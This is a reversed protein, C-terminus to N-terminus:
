DLAADRESREKIVGGGLLREGDYVVASQGVAVAFQPDDFRLAFREDDLVELTAPEPAQRYRV